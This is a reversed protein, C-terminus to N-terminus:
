EVQTAGGEVRDERAESAAAYFLSAGIPDGLKYERAFVQAKFRNREAPSKVTLRDTQKYLLFVYRHQGIPPTPGNYPVVEDGAVQFCIVMLAWAKSM